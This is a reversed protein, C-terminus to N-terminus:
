SDSDDDYRPLACNDVGNGECFWFPRPVVWFVIDDYFGFALVPNQNNSGGLLVVSGNRGQLSIKYPKTIIGNKELDSFKAGLVVTSLAKAKTDESNEHAAAVPLAVVSIPILVPAALAYALGESIPGFNDTDDRPNTEVRSNLQESSLRKEFMQKTYLALCAYPEDSKKLPFVICKDFGPAHYFKSSEVTVASIKGNKFLV